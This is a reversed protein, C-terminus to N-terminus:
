ERHERPTQDQEASRRCMLLTWYQNLVLENQTVTPDLVERLSELEKRIWSVARLRGDEDLPSRRFLETMAYRRRVCHRATQVVEFGCLTVLSILFEPTYYRRRLPQLLAKFVSWFASDTAGFSTVQALRFEGRERLIRRVEMLAEAERTYHLLQRCIVVDFSAPAFPTSEAAAQVYSARVRSSAQQLMSFSLDMGVAQGGEASFAGLLLGTGCGLDLVQKELLGSTLSQTLTEDSCWEASEDYESAFQEFHETVSQSVVPGPNAM